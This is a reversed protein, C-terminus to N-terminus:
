LLWMLDQGEKVYLINSYVDMQDLLRPDRSSLLTFHHQATDFDRMNYHALALQSQLYPSQVLVGGEQERTEGDEEHHRTTRSDGDDNDNNIGQILREMVSIANDNSQTELFVHTCFFYYMWHASLPKLLDEVHPHLTPDTICLEALDLWASWNYPFQLLSQILISHPTPVDQTPDHSFVIPRPSPINNRTSINSSSATTNNNSSSSSSASKHSEKLVIGYVYLGFPDLVNQTYYEHLESTLQALHANRLATRELPDSSYYYHNYNHTISLSVLLIFHSLCVVM